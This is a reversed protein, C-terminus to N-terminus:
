RGAVQRPVRWRGKEDRCVMGAGQRIGDDMHLKIRYNRCYTSEELRLTRTPTIDIYMDRAPADWRVSKGSPRSEMIEQFYQKYEKVVAGPIAPQFATLELRKPAKSRRTEVQLVVQEIDPAYYWYHRKKFKGMEDSLSCHVRYVDFVGAIVTIREAKDVKCYWDRRATKKAGTEKDSTTRRVTFRGSVGVQMPWLRALDGELQHSTIRRSSEKYREPAFLNQDTVYHIRSSRRWAVQGNGAGTVRERRGNSFYRRDGPKSVPPEAAAMSNIETADPLAGGPTQCGATLLLLSLLGAFSLRFPLTTIM